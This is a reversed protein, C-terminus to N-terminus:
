EEIAGELEPHKERIHRALNSQYAYPRKCNRVICKYKKKKTHVYMHDRLQVPRNFVRHCKPCIKQNPLLALDLNSEEVNSILPESTSNDSQGLLALQSANNNGILASTAPVNALPVTPVVQGSAVNGPLWVGQNPGLGYTESERAAGPHGTMFPNAATPSLGWANAMQNTGANSSGYLNMPNRYPAMYDTSYYNATASSGGPAYVNTPLRQDHQPLPDLPPPFPALFRPDPFQCEDRPRQLPRRIIVSYGRRRLEQVSLSELDDEMYDSAFHNASNGQWSFYQGAGSANGMWSADSPGASYGQGNFYPGGPGGPNLSLNHSRNTLGYLSKFLPWTICRRRDTVLYFHDDEPPRRKCDFHGLPYLLKGSPLKSSPTCIPRNRLAHPVYSPEGVPCPKLEEAKNSQYPITENIQRVGTDPAFRVHHSVPDDYGPDRKPGPALATVNAFGLEGKSLLDKEDDANTEQKVRHSPKCGVSVDIPPTGKGESSGEPRGLLGLLLSCPTDVVRKLETDESFRLPQFEPREIEVVPLDKCRRLLEPEEQLRANRRVGQHNMSGDPNSFEWLYKSLPFYDGFVSSPFRSAM